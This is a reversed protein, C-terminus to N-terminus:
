SWLFLQTPSAIASLQFTTSCGCLAYLAFPTFHNRQLINSQFILSALAHETWRRPLDRSRELPTFEYDTGLEGILRGHIRDPDLVFVEGLFHVGGQRM